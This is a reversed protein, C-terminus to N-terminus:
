NDGEPEQNTKSAEYAQIAELIEEQKKAEGLDIEKEKAYKKLEPVTMEDVAKPVKKVDGTVRVLTEIVHKDEMEFSEERKYTVGNYRVPVNIVEVKKM